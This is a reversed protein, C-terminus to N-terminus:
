PEAKPSYFHMAPVILSRHLSVIFAKPRNRQSPDPAVAISYARIAAPMETAMMETAFESPEWNFDVNVFIM